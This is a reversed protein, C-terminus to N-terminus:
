RILQNSFHPVKSSSSSFTAPVFRQVFRLCAAPRLAALAPERAAQQELVAAALDDARTVNVEVLEARVLAALRPPRYTDVLALQVAHPEAAHSRHDGGLARLPHDVAAPDLRDDDILLGRGLLSATGLPDQATLDSSWPLHQSAEHSFVELTVAIRPRSRSRGTLKSFMKLWIWAGVCTIALPSLSYSSPTILKRL